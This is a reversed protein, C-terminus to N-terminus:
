RGDVGPIFLKLFFVHHDALIKFLPEGKNKTKLYAVAWGALQFITQATSIQLFIVLIRALVSSRFGMSAKKLWPFVITNAVLIAVLLM